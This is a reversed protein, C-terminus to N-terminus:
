VVLVLKNDYTQSLQIRICNASDGTRISFGM